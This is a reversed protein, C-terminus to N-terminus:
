LSKKVIVFITNLKLTKFIWFAKKTKKLHVLKALNEGHHLHAKFCCGLMLKQEVFLLVARRLLCWHLFVVTKLEWLHRILVPISFIFLM